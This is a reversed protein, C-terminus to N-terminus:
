NGNIVCERVWSSMNALIADSPQPRHPAAVAYFDSNWLSCRLSDVTQNFEEEKAGDEDRWLDPAVLEIFKEVLQRQSPSLRERHKELWQSANTRILMAKTDASVNTFAQRRAADDLAMFAEHSPPQAEASQAPAVASLTTAALAMAVLPPLVGSVSM